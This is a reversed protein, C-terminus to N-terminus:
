VTLLGRQFAPQHLVTAADLPAPVVIPVSPVKTTGGDAHVDVTAPITDAPLLEAWDISLFRPVIRAVERRMKRHADLSVGRRHWDLVTEGGDLRLNHRVCLALLAAMTCNDARPERRQFGLMFERFKGYITAMPPLERVPPEDLGLFRAIKDASKLQLELRLVKPQNWAKRRVGDRSPPRKWYAQFAAKVGALRISGTAYNETERRIWAHRNHRLAVVISEPDDHDLNIALDLRRYTEAQGPVDSVQSLIQHVRLLAADRELDDRIQVGNFSHLARPLSGTWGRLETPTGHVYIGTPKHTGQLKYGTIAGFSSKAGKTLWFEWGPVPQLNGEAVADAVSPLLSRVTTCTVTDYM